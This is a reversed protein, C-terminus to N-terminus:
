NRWGSVSAHTQWVKVAKTPLVPSETVTLLRFDFVTM